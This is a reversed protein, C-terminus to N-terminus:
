IPSSWNSGQHRLELRWNGNPALNRGDFRLPCLRLKPVRRLFPSSRRNGLFIGARRPLPTGGAGFRTAAIPPPMRGRGAVFSARALRRRRSRRPCPCLSVIKLSRPPAIAFCAAHRRRNPWALDGVEVFTGIGTLRWRRPQWRPLRLGSPSRRLAASAAACPTTSRVCLSAPRGQERRHEIPRRRGVDTNRHQGARRLPSCDGLM